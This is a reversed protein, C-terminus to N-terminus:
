DYRYRVIVIGSGGAGGTNNSGAGGGGGGTNAGAAGGGGSTGAIGGGQGGAGQTSQSSSGGGGGGDGGLGALTYYSGGGGGGAYYTPAGSIAIVLGRGGFGGEGGSNSSYVVDGGRGGAGGGGAGSHGSGITYSDGGKHGQGIISAGGRGFNSSAQWVSGGGGSGGNAGAGYSNAATASVIMSAGGGGGIAIINGFQSNDGRTGVSYSDFNTGRTGNGAGGPGVYVTYSKGSVVPYDTRYVLGGAGGGGGGQDGGGGGGGAIVLVEVSGTCDATFLTTIGATSYTHTRYGGINRALAFGSKNEATRVYPTTTTGVEFQAGWVFVGSTGDGQYPGLRSDSLSSAPSIAIRGSTTTNMVPTTMTCRYWGDNISTISATAGNVNSGGITYTGSSTLQFTVWHDTTSFGTSPSFQIFNRGAPKAYISQTVTVGAGIANDQLIYRSTGVSGDEVLKDASLTGDPATAANATVSLANPNWATNAFDESYRFMNHTAFNKPPVRSVWKLSPGEFTEIEKLDTNYRIQGDPSTGDVLTVYRIIVVGSGGAGGIPSNGASYGGGGGGGGTSATADAGQTNTYGGRGGGGIGGQGTAIVIATNQETGAGGGGGYWTPTGSIDFNLGPGGSAVGGANGPGDAGPGGAGGGGGGSYVGTQNGGAGGNYGQGTTGYGGRGALGSGGGGSGGTQGAKSEWGNGAGGGIATLAGFVSNSGNNGVGNFGAATRAGGAGVTVTYATSPTVAFGARYIVGGAGGGGSGGNGQSGSGGGAVVLVDVYNVNTPCTWSTNTLTPTVGALVSYSQSGTNTWQIITTIEAPRQSTTGKSPTIYGNDTVTTNKLIAM